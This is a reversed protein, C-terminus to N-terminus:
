SARLGALGNFARQPLRGKKLFSPLPRSHIRLMKIQPDCPLAVWRTSPLHAISLSFSSILFSGYAKLEYGAGASVSVTIVPGLSGAHDAGKPECQNM